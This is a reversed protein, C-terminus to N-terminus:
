AADSTPPLGTSPGRGPRDRLPPLMLAAALAWMGLSLGLVTWVLTSRGRRSAVVATLPGLAANIVLSTALLNLAGGRYGTLAFGSALSVITAATEM